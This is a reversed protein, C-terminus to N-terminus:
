AGQEGDVPKENEDRKAFFLARQKADYDHYDYFNLWSLHRHRVETSIKAELGIEKLSLYTRADGRIPVRSLIDTRFLLLRGPPNFPDILPEKADQLQREPSNPKILFDIQEQPMDPEIKRAEAYDVFDTPVSQSGLMYLLPNAKMLRVMTTLWGEESDLIIVDSEAFAFFEGLDDRYQRILWELRDPRNDACMHVAHFMERRIFGEVVQSVLPDSSGNDAFVIKAPYKTNRYLSDLMCWLYIPRNYSLVFVYVPREPELANQTAAPSKRRQFLM